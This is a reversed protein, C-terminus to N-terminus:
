DNEGVEQGLGIRARRQYWEASDTNMDAIRELEKRMRLWECAMQPMLNRMRLILLAEMPNECECIIADSAIVLTTGDLARGVTWTRSAISKDSEIELLEAIEEPDTM